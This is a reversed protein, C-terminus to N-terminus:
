FEINVHIIVCHHFNMYRFISVLSDSQKRIIMNSTTLDGHIIDGEHLIALYSGIKESLQYLITSTVDVEQLLKKVLQGEIFEM